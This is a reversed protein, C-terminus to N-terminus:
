QKAHGASFLSRLRQMQEKRRFRVIEDSVPREKYRIASFVYGCLHACGGIFYPRKTMLFASRFIEWLPHTGFAYDKQGDKFRAKLIGNEATGVKRHHVSNKEVFKRTQWGKMRASLVAILDVGGMRRPVYGGISEFCERRFLQCIGSVDEMNTSPFAYQRGYEIYPTGAVGLLPNETFKGLLFSFYDDKFSIDADLNGVIDFELGKVREYGANFADVKGAFNREEREPMRILEIWEYESIYKKVIDDTGDTSGDSVIVWKLPRVTQSIVSKITQEIFAAENRAPTILVFTPLNGMTM